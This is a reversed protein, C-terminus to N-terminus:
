EPTSRECFSGHEGNFQGCNTCKPGLLKRASRLREVVNRFHETLNYELEQLSILTQWTRGDRGTDHGQQLVYWGPGRWGGSNFGRRGKYGQVITHGEETVIHYADDGRLDAPVEENSGLYGALTKRDTFAHKARVHTNADLGDAFTEECQECKYKTRTGVRAPVAPIEYQEEIPKIM